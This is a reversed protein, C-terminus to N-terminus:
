ICNLNKFSHLKVKLCTFNKFIFANIVKTQAHGKAVMRDKFEKIFCEKHNM